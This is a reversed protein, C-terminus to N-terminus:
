NAYRNEKVIKLWVADIARQLDPSVQTRQWDLYPKAFKGMILLDQEAMRRVLPDKDLLKTSQCIPRMGEQLNVIEKADALKGAPLAFKLRAEVAGSNGGNPEVAVQGSASIELQSEAIRINSPATFKYMGDQHLEQSLLLWASLATRASAKDKVIAANAFFSKLQELTTVLQPQGTEDIVFINNNSLPAPVDVPLPWQPYRLVYFIRRGLSAQLSADSLIFVRGREAFPWDKRTARTVLTAIASRPDSKLGIRAWEAKEADSAPELKLRHVIPAQHGTTKQPHAVGSSTAYGGGSKVEVTPMTDSGQANAPLQDPRAMVATTCFPVVVSLLALFIKM